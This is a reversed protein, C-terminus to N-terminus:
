LRVRAAAARALLAERENEARGELVDELLAELALGLEPGKLGLAALDTGNVALQKRTVCASRLARVEAQLAACEASTIGGEARTMDLCDLLAAEGYEGLLRRTAAAAIAQPAAAPATCRMRVLKAVRETFARSCRLQNLIDRAIEEGLPRLLAAMRLAPDPRLAEVAARCRRWPEGELRALQPLITFIVARYDELVPGAYAGGLLKLLEERLREVAIHHLNGRLELVARATNEELTFGLVAYFRLARLIRLADEGFRREPAGVCRLLKARLDDKGGFPDRLGRAPHWAMANVTFDRRSLDACLDDTFTVTDPRRHDSYDGDLRFSTVEVARGGVLATVTGHQLGTEILRLGELARMAEEPRASTAIDWDLPERGLLSDRVCGGVAYACFGASELLTLVTLAHPPLPITVKM